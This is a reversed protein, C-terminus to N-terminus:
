FNVQLLSKLDYLNTPLKKVPVTMAYNYDNLLGELERRDGDMDKEIPENSKLQDDDEDVEMTNNSPLIDRKLSKLFRKNSVLYFWKESM